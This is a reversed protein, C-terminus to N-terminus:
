NIELKSSIKPYGVNQMRASVKEIRSLFEMSFSNFPLQQLDIPTVNEIPNYPVSPWSERQCDEIVSV